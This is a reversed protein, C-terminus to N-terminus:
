YISTLFINLNVEENRVPSATRCTRSSISISFIINISSWVVWWGAALKCRGVLQLCRCRLMVPFSIVANERSVIEKYYNTVPCYFLDLNSFVKIMMEDWRMELIIDLNRDRDWEWVELGFLRFSCVKRIWIEFLERQGEDVGNM